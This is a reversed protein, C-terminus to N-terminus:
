TGARGRPASKQFERAFRQEDDSWRPMGVKDINGQV